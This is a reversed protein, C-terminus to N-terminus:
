LIRGRLTFKLVPYVKIGEIVDIANSLDDDASESLKDFDGNNVYFKPTGHFQVGLEVRCGVRKKPVARGFGLGLYPRFGNVKLGGSVNGNRDVPVRYDDVEIYADTLTIGYQEAVPGYEAYADAIDQSHGKVKIIKNGGFSFGGTIFFKGGGPYWDAKLDITTRSMSGEVYMQGYTPYGMQTLRDDVAAFNIQVYDGYTIAPMINLGARVAFQKGLNTAVEIGIGETGVGAGISWRNAMGYFDEAQATGLSLLALVATIISKRM